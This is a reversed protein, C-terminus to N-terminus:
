GSGACRSQSIRAARKNGATLGLAIFAKKRSLGKGVFGPVIGLKNGFVASEKVLPPFLVENEPWFGVKSLGAIVM